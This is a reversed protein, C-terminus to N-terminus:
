SQSGSRELKLRCEPVPLVSWNIVFAGESPRVKKQRQIARYSVFIPWWHMLLFSHYGIRSSINYKCCLCLICKQFSYIIAKRKILQPHTNNAQKNKVLLVLISNELLSISLKWSRLDQTFRFLQFVYRQPVSESVAWRLHGNDAPPLLFWPIKAIFTPVLHRRCPIRKCTLLLLCVLSTYKHFFFFNAPFIPSLISVSISSLQWLLYLAENDKM